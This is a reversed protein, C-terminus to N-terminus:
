AGLTPRDPGAAKCRARRRGIVGHCGGAPALGAHLPSRGHRESEGEALLQCQGEAGGQGEERDNGGEAQGYGFFIPGLPSDIGVFVSGAYILSDISVADRADWVNGAEVSAGIYAPLAFLRSMDGFRRYYIARALASHEGSLDRDGYGSLRTFGGLTALASFAEPDGWSTQAEAGVLLRHRDFSFARYADARLVEGHAESGLGPRTVFPLGSRGPVSVSLSRAEIVPMDSM